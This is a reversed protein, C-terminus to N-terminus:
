KIRKKKRQYRWIRFIDIILFVFLGISSLVIINTKLSGNPAYIATFIILLIPYAYHSIKKLYKIVKIIVSRERDKNIIEILSLVTQFLLYSLSIVVLFRTSNIMAFVILTIVLGIFVYTLVFKLRKKLMVDTDVKKFFYSVVKVILTLIAEGFLEFFLELVIRIFEEM